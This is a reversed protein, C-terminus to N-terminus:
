RGLRARNIRDFESQEASGGSPNSPSTGFGNEKPDGLKAVIEQLDIIQKDQANIRAVLGEITKQVEENQPQEVPKEGEETVEEKPEEVEPQEGEVKQGEEGEPKQEEDPKEGEPQEEEGEPEKVEDPEEGEKAPEGNPETPETPEEDEDEKMTSLQSLFENKEEEEVGFKLLLKGVKQLIKEDKTM